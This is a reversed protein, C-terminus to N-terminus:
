GWGCIDCTETGTNFEAACEGCQGTFSDYACGVCMQLDGAAFGSPCAQCHEVSPTVLTTSLVHEPTDCLANKGGLAMIETFTGKYVTGDAGVLLTFFGSGTCDTEVLELTTPDLAFLCKDTSVLVLDATVVIANE